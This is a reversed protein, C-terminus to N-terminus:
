THRKIQNDEIILDQEKLIKELINALAYSGNKHLSIILKDIDIM